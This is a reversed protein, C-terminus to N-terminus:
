LLRVREEGYKLNNYYLMGLFQYWNKLGIAGYFYKIGERTKLTCTRSINDFTIHYFEVGPLENGGHGGICMYYGTTSYLNIDQNVSPCTKAKFNGNLTKVKVSVKFVKSTLNKSVTTM